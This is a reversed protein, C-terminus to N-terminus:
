IIITIEKRRKQHAWNILHNLLLFIIRKHHSVSKISLNNAKMSEDPIFMANRDFRFPLNEVPKWSEIHKEKEELRDTQQIIQQKENWRLWCMKKKNRERKGDTHSRHISDLHLPYCCCWCCCVWFFFIFSITLWCTVDVVCCCCCFILCALFWIM